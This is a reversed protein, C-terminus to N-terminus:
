GRVMVLPAQTDFSAPPSPQREGLVHQALELAPEDKGDDVVENLLERWGPQGSHHLIFGLLSKAMMNDPHAALVERRLVDVAEASKGQSHYMLAYGYGVHPLDPRYAKAGALVTEARDFMREWAALLGVQILSKIVATEVEPRM